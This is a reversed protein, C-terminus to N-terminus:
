VASNISYNAYSSLTAGDAYRAIPVRGLSAEVGRYMANWANSVPM